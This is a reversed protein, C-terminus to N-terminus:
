KENQAVGQPSIAAWTIELQLYVAQFLIMTVSYNMNMAAAQVYSFTSDDHM